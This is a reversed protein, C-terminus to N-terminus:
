PEHESAISARLQVRQAEGPRTNEDAGSPTAMEDTRLIRALKIVAEHTADKVKSESLGLRLATQRVSQDFYYRWVVVQRQRTSLHHLALALPATEVLYQENTPGVSPTLSITVRTAKRQGRDLELAVHFATVITWAELNPHTAIRHWVAFARTLTEQAVDEAFSTDGRRFRSGVSYALPLLRAFWEDFSVAGAPASRRDTRPPADLAFM